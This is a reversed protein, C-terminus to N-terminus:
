PCQTRSRSVYSSTCLCVFACSTIELAVRETHMAGFWIVQWRFSLCFENVYSTSSTAVIKRALVHAHLIVIHARCFLVAYKRYNSKERKLVPPITAHWCCFQTMKKNELLLLISITAFCDEKTKKTHLIEAASWGATPPPTRAAILQRWKLYLFRPISRERSCLFDVEGDHFKGDWNWHIYISHVLTKSAIEM